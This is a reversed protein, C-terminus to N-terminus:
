AFDIDCAKISDGDSGISDDDLDEDSSDDKNEKGAEIVATLTILLATLMDMEDKLKIIKMVLKDKLDEM